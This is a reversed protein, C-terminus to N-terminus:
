RSPTGGRRSPTPQLAPNALVVADTVSTLRHIRLWAQGYDYEATAISYVGRNLRVEVSDHVRYESSDCAPFLSAGSTRMCFRLDTQSFLERPMSSLASIVNEDDLAGAGGWEMPVILDIGEGVPAPLWTSMPVEEALVIAWGDRVAIIGVPGDVDCAADYDTAPTGPEATWRSQAEVVRGGSPVGAGEWLPVLANPLLLHPGGDASVWQLTDERM